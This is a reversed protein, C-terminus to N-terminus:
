RVLIFTLSSFSTRSVIKLNVGVIKGSVTEILNGEDIPIYIRKEKEFPAVSSLKAVKGELWLRM